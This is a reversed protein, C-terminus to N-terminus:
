LHIILKMWIMTKVLLGFVPLFMKVGLSEEKEKALQLISIIKHITYLPGTLLGAQQGAIVVYTNEDELAKVNQITSEGAQM